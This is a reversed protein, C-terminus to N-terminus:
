CSSDLLRVRLASTISGISTENSFPGVSGSSGKFKLLEVCAGLVTASSLVLSGYQSGVVLRVEDAYLKYHCFGFIM